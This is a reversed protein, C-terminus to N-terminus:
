IGDFGIDNKKGRYLGHEVSFELRNGIQNIIDQLALGSDTFSDSLCDNVFKEILETNIQDLLERFEISTDSNDKLKGNGAFSLIQSLSKSHFTQKDKLWIESISNM